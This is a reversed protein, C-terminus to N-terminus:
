GAALDRLAKEIFVDPLGDMQYFKARRSNGGITAFCYVTDDPACEVAVSAGWKMPADIAVGRRETPSVRYRAPLIAYLRPLLTRANAVSGADPEPLDDEKAEDNLSDLDSLAERLDRDDHPLLEATSAGSEQVARRSMSGAPHPVFYAHREDDFSGLDGQSPWTPVRVLYGGVLGHGTHMGGSATERQPTAPYLRRVLTEPDAALDDLSVTGENKHLEVLKGALSHRLPESHM